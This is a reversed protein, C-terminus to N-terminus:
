KLGRGTMEKQNEIFVSYVDVPKVIDQYLLAKEEKSLKRAADTFRFDGQLIDPNDLNIDSSIACPTSISRKQPQVKSTSLHNEERESFCRGNHVQLLSGRRKERVHTASPNPQIIEFLRMNFQKEIEQFVESWSQFDELQITISMIVIIVRCVINLM